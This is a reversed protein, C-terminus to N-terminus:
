CGCATTSCPACTRTPAEADRAHLRVVQGPRVETGSRSGAAEPDAGSSAAVLFDGRVYDPKNADVVIGVLLGQEVLALEAAPLEEITERLKALAPRGALEAIVHGEGATITLEPRDARRGPLRVPDRRRRRATSRGAAEVVEDGMFLATADDPLRAAALGGILPLEPAQESLARLVADTPFSAPDALLIVASADELPPLGTLAGVGSGEGLPEVAAHFPTAEGGGLAACWVSVATGREIERRGGIVGEAGCGILAAPELVEQVAELTAEPAALHVGTAFVLAVDCPEGELGRSAASAAELAGVRADPVTSLGSGIRVPM